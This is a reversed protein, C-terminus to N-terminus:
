DVKINDVSTYMDEEWLKILDNSPFRKFGFLRKNVFDAVYITSKDPSINIGNAFLFGTAVSRALKGDYYFVEGSGRMLAVELDYGWWEKYRSWQTVYFKDKDNLNISKHNTITRIHKLAKFRILDFVEIRDWSDPHTIVFVTISGTNPDKWTSIGHPKAMFGPGGPPNTVNLVRYNPPNTSLDLLMLDGRAWGLGHSFLINGFGFRGFVDFRRSRWREVSRRMTGTCPRVFKAGQRLGAFGQTKRSLPFHCSVFCCHLGPVVDGQFVPMHFYREQRRQCSDSFHIIM